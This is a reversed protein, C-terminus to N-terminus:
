GCVFHITHRGSVSYYSIIWYSKGMRLREGCWARNKYIQERIEENATLIAIIKFNPKEIKMLM